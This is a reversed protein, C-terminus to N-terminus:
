PEAAEPARASPAPAGSVFPPAVTDADERSPSPESPVPPVPATDEDREPAPVPPEHEGEDEAERELLGPGADAQEAEDRGGAYHRALADAHAGDDALDADQAPADKIDDKPRDVLVISQAPDVGAVLGAPLKITKGFIWPGTDVLLFTRSEREVVEEVKGIGGDLAQVAM